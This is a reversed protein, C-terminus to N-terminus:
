ELGGITGTFSKGKSNWSNHTDISGVWSWLDDDHGVGSFEDTLDSSNELSSALFAIDGNADSFLFCFCRESLDNHGNWCPDGIHWTSSLRKVIGIKLHHDKIFSILNKTLFCVGCMKVLKVFLQMIDFTSSLTNQETGSEIIENLFVYVFEKRRACTIFDFLFCHFKFTDLLKLHKTSLIILIIENM